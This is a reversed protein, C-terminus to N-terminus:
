PQLILLFSLDNSGDFKMVDSKIYSQLHSGTDAVYLLAVHFWRFHNLLDILFLSLGRTNPRTSILNYAKSHSEYVQQTQLYRQVKLRQQQDQQPQRHQSAKLTPSNQPNQLPDSKVLPNRVIFYPTGYKLSAVVFPPSYPGILALKNNNGVSM